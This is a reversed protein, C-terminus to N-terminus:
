SSFRNNANSKDNQHDICPMNKWKMEGEITIDREESTARSNEGHSTM